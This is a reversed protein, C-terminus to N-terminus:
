GLRISNDKMIQIFTNCSDLLCKNVFISKKYQTKYTKDTSADEHHIVKINPYYLFIMNERQGLLYLIYSEFYMFTDNYFCENHKEIFHKSFVYFAGHLIKGTCQEQNLTIPINDRVRGFKYKVKLLIKLTNKLILKCRIKKLEKLTYNFERQPNQHSNSRTSFIDPGLVDFKYEKYAEELKESFDDKTLLTDSNLVVVYDPFFEKANKYGINNGKAFGSNNKNLVVIIEPDDQYTKKLFEGSGNPSNNDVIIIKKNDHVNQKISTVCNVTEESAQYHLIVFATM